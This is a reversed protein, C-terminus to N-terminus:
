DNKLKKCVKPRAPMTANCICNIWICFFGRREYGSSLNCKIALYIYLPWLPPNRFTRYFSFFYCVCAVQCFCCCVAIFIHFICPSFPKNVYSVRVRFVSKPLLIYQGCHHIKGLFDFSMIYPIYKLKYTNQLRFM